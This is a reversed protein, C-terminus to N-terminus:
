RILYYTVFFLIVRHVLYIVLSWRGCFCIVDIGKVQESIWPFLSRKEKYLIPKLWIGLMYWGLNPLIPVWDMTALARTRLGLPFLYPNEIRVKLRLYYGAALIVLALILQIPRPIKKLLPYIIMCFGILHLIGWWIVDEKNGTVKATYMSFLTVFVGGGFVILGRKLSSKSFAICIGSILIFVAGGYQKVFRFFPLWEIDMGSYRGLFEFVHVIVMCIVAVGRAFDLEWIRNKILNDKV